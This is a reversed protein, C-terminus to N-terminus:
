WLTGTLRYKRNFYRVYRRGLAQMMRSIGGDMNPTVLLHVHNTMLVWALVSVRFQHAYEDLWNVYVALDLESAFCVQRNNSRQIIHQPVGLPSIRPLRAM